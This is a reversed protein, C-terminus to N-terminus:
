VTRGLITGCRKRCSPKLQFRLLSSTGSQTVPSVMLVVLRVVLVVLVVMVVVVFLVVVLVM